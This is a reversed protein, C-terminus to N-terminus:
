TAEQAKVRDYHTVAETVRAPRALWFERNKVRRAFAEIDDHAWGPTGARRHALDVARCAIVLEDCPLWGLLGIPPDGARNPGLVGLATGVAPAVEALAALAMEHPTM